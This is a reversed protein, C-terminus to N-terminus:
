ASVVTSKVGPELCQGCYKKRFLEKRREIPSMEVFRKCNFYYVVQVGRSNKCPVHHSGNCFFCKPNGLQTNSQYALKPDDGKSTPKTGTYGSRSQLGLCKKSKEYLIMKEREVLENNLFKM